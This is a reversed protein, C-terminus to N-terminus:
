SINKCEQLCANFSSTELHGRKEQALFIIIGSFSGELGLGEAQVFQIVAWGSLNRHSPIVSDLQKLLQMRYTTHFRSSAVQIFLLNNPTETM